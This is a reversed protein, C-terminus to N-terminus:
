SSKTLPNIVGMTWITVWIIGMILGNVLYGHGELYHGSGNGWEKRKM